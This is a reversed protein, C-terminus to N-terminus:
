TLNLFDRLETFAAQIITYYAWKRRQERTLLGAEVLRKLHHSITPQSVDLVDILDCACVSECGQAAVHSLIRLRTPDSLAKLKAAMRDATAADLPSAHVSCCGDTTTILREPAPNTTTM